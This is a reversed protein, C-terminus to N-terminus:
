EVLGLAWRVAELWMTRIEQRAWMEPPHGLSSYFVRGRGYRRTWAIPIDRHRVGEITMDVSATDLSMLVHSTDRSFGEIQYIEDVLRLSRPFHRMAVFERDEVELTAEVQDWPHGDFTGGILEGYEPWEHLTATASHAGLFGKGAEGVFSLLASRQEEDLPLEGSTMFFVADFHDLNKGNRELERRTILQVDTRITTEWSGSERGLQYITALADSTSEHQWDSSMGIALLQRPREQGGVSSSMMFWSIAAGLLTRRLLSRRRLSVGRESRVKRTSVM